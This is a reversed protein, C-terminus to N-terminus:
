STTNKSTFKAHDIYIKESLVQFFKNEIAEILEKGLEDSSNNRSHIEGLLSLPQLMPNGSIIKPNQQTLFEALSYKKSNFSIKSDNPSIISIHTKNKDLVYIPKGENLLKLHACDNMSSGKHLTTMLEFHNSLSDLKNEDIKNGANIQKTIQDFLNAPETAKAISEGNNRPTNISNNHKKAELDDTEVPMTSRIREPHNYPNITNM